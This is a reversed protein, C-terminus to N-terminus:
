VSAKVVQSWTTSFIPCSFSFLFLFYIRGVVMRCQLKRGSLLRWLKHVCVVSSLFPFYCFWQYLTSSNIQLIWLSDNEKKRLLKIDPLTPVLRENDQPALLALPWSGVWQTLARRVKLKRSFDISYSFLLPFTFYLFVICNLFLFISFLGFFFCGITQPHEVWKGGSENKMSVPLFLFDNCNFTTM